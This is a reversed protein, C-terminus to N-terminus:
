RAAYASLLLAEVESLRFPSFFDFLAEVADVEEGDVIGYRALFTEQNRRERQSSDADYGGQQQRQYFSLSLRRGSGALLGQVFENWLRPSVRDYVFRLLRAFPPFLLFVDKASLSMGGAGYRIEAGTADKLATRFGPDRLFSSVVGYDNPGGALLTWFRDSARYQKPVHTLVYEDFYDEFEQPSSGGSTSPPWGNEEINTVDRHIRALVSQVLRHYPHGSRSLKDWVEEARISPVTAVSGGAAEALPVGATRAGFRSAEVLLVLRSRRCADM